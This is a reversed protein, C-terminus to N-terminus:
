KGENGEDGKREGVEPLPGYNQSLCVHLLALLVPGEGAADVLQQATDAGSEEQAPMRVVGVAHLQRVLRHVSPNNVPKSNATRRDHSQLRLPWLKLTM